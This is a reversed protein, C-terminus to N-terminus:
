YEVRQLTRAPNSTPQMDIINEVALAKPHINHGDNVDEVFLFWRSGHKMTHGQRRISLYVVEYEKVVGGAKEYTVALTHGAYAAESAIKTALELDM